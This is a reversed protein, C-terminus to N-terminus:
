IRSSCVASSSSGPSRATWRPNTPSSPKSTPVRDRDVALRNRGDVPAARGRGEVVGRELRAVLVASRHVRESDRLQPQARRRTGTRAGHRHRVRPVGVRRARRHGSRSGGSRRSTPRRKGSRPEGMQDEDFYTGRLFARARESLPADLKLVYSEYEKIAAQDIAGLRRRSLGSLRRHRVRQGLGLAVVDSLEAGFLNLRSRTASAPLASVDLARETPRRTFVSIVGAMARNGWVNSGAGRIVEIREISAQPVRAWYTVGEYPDNFPAGDLLVLTRASGSGLNRVNSEQTGGSSVLSSQQRTLSFGPVRRLVHDTTLGATAEIEAEDLVTVNAAVDEKDQAVRNATVVVEESLEGEPAIDNAAQPTPTAQVGGDPAPTGPAEAHLVGGTLCLLLCVLIPTARSRPQFRM